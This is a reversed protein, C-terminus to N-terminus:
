LTESSLDATTLGALDEEVDLARDTAIPQGRSEHIARGWRALDARRARDSNGTTSAATVSKAHCWDLALDALPPAM